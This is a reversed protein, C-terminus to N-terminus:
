AARRLEYQERAEIPSLYGRKEIRWQRNYLEVFRRVAARLEEVTRYIRGHIIQEKLTRNFREAVGNTEPEAVFAFSPHIGWFKIQNLFHDSLYQTGHDMRLALGRAVEAEVSGFLHTLGMSIPELAAFRDGVKAVHWGVCEASWHEVASFIWVWGDDVTFVRAGDTGWMVNPAETSITGAHPEETHTRPRHPSLLRHERMLRLVRKRSVRITDVIRLRAWVKRHGEGTFPSRELDHRIAALLEEDSVAPVPGRKRLGVVTESAKGTVAQRETGWAYYSSRALEWATCVRKVGYVQGTSASTAASM